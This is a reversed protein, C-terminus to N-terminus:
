RGRRAALRERLLEIPFPLSTVAIIVLIAADINNAVLPITGAVLGITVLGAVWVFGGILNNVTFARTELRSIGALMPVLARVVPVFRALIIARAGYREFYAHTKAVFAPNFIWTHRREFLVPGVAKGTLFGVQSGAIASAAVLLIALWWPMTSTTAITLGLVFLLSDGPLFSTVIFSTEVFVIVAVAYPAYSGFRDILTHPDLWSVDVLERKRRATTASCSPM